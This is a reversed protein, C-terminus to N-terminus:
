EAIEIDPGPLKLSRNQILAGSSDTIPIRKLTELEYMGVSFEYTGPPTEPPIVVQYQDKIRENQVWLFTPYDGSQPKSDSQAVLQGQADLLHIFVTYDGTPSNLAEWFLTIHVTDGPGARAPTLDYGLLHFDEGIKADISFPYSNETIIPGARYIWAYPIGDFEVIFNPNKNQYKEWLEQWDESRMGRIVANRTFLLYDANENSIEFTEGNFYRAVALSDQAGVVLSQAEPLDNLYGAAIELGEIKEQGAIIKSELIYKPGGLLYNYHTGFNPYRTLSVVAQILIVFSLVLTFIIPRNITYKRLFLVIGIGGLLIVFVLGPLAYRSFKKEGLTMMLTFFVVFILAFFLIIRKQRDLTRDFLLVIGLIFGISAVATTKFAMNLPYFLVGPDTLMAEGFFYIPNPHPTERFYNTHSFSQQLTEFPNSWMSPWLIIYTAALSVFWILFVYLLKKFVLFLQQRSFINAKDNENQSKALLGIFVVLLFYPVLFLAPSKSLIALGAFIGSLILLPSRDWKIYSWMFLASLLAFVSVLGDVHIAQSLSIHYPDLALLLTVVAAVQWDLVDRLLFYAIVISIAIVFTIPFLEIAMQQNTDREFFGSDFLRAIEQAIGALWMTTVGPHPSYYTSAWDQNKIAEM